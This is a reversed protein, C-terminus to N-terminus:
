GHRGVGTYFDELAHIPDERNHREVKARAAAGIRGRRAPDEILSTLASVLSQVDDLPVMLGDVDHTVLAQLEPIDSVVVPLGSAMMELLALPLGERRSPFVGVSAKRLLEPVDSRAGLFRVERGEPVVSAALDYMAGDMEDPGIVTLDTDFGPDLKAFARILTDLGKVPHIRGVSVLGVPESSRPEPPPRFREIDIQNELLLHQKRPNLFRSARNSAEVATGVSIVHYHRYLRRYALRLVFRAHPSYDTSRIRMLHDTFVLEAPTQRAALIGLGLNRPLTHFHLVDPEFERIRALAEAGYRKASRLLFGDALYATLSYGYHARFSATLLHAHKPLSESGLSSGDDSLTLLATEFRGPDLRRLQSLVVERIGGVELNDVVLLVRVREPM